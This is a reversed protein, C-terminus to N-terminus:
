NQLNSNEDSSINFKIGREELKAKCHLLATSYGEAYVDNIMSALKILDNESQIHSCLRQIIEKHAVANKPLIKKFYDIVAKNKLGLLSDLNFM